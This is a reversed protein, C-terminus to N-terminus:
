TVRLTFFRETNTAGDVKPNCELLGKSNNFFELKLMEKLGLFDSILQALTVKICYLHMHREPQSQLRYYFHKLYDLVNLLSIM